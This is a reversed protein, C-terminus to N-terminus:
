AGVNVKPGNPGLSIEMRGSSDAALHADGVVGAGSSILDKGYRRIDLIMTERISISNKKRKKLCGPDPLKEGASCFFFLTNALNCPGDGDHKWCQARAYPKNM